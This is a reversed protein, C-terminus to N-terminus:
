LRELRGSLTARAGETLRPGFRELVKETFATRVSPTAKEMAHLLVFVKRDQHEAFGGADFLHGALRLAAELDEKVLALEIPKRLMQLQHFPDGEAM